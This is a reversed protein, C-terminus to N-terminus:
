PVLVAIAIGTAPGIMWGELSQILMVDPPNGVVLSMVPVRILADTMATLLVGYILGKVWRSRGPLNDRLLLYAIVKGAAPLFAMGLAIATVIRTPERVIHDLRGARAATQVYQEAWGQGYLVHISFGVTAAVAAAFSLRSWVRWQSALNENAHSEHGITM